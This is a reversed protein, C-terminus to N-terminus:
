SKFIDRVKYLNAVEDYFKEFLKDNLLSRYISFFEFMDKDTNFTITIKGNEILINIVAKPYIDRLSLIQRLLIKNLIVKGDINNETYTRFIKNFTLDDTQFKQYNQEKSPKFHKPSMFNVKQLILIKGNAKINSNLRMVFGNFVTSQNKGSGKSVQIEEINVSNDKTSFEDDYGNIYSGSPFLGKNLLEEFGSIQEIPEEETEEINEKQNEDTEQKAKLEVLDYLVPIIKKKIKHSFDKLKGDGFIIPIAITLIPIMGWYKNKMIGKFDIGYYSFVYYVAVTLVISLVIMGVCWKKLMSIREQDQKKLLVFVSGHVRNLFESKSIM